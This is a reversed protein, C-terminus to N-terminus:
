ILKTFISVKEQHEAYSVVLQGNIVQNHLDEKFKTDFNVGLHLSQGTKLNVIMEQALNGTEEDILSFPMQTSMQATLDLSSINSITLHKIQNPPLGSSGDKFIFLLL